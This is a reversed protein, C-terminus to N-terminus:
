LAQHIGSENASLDEDSWAKGVSVDLMEKAYGASRAIWEAVLGSGTLNKATVAINGSYDAHLMTDSYVGMTNNRILGFHLQLGMWCLLFLALAVQWVKFTSPMFAQLTLPQAPGTYVFYHTSATM